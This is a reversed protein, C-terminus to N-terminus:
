EVLVVKRSLLVHGDPKFTVKCDGFDLLVIDEEGMYRLM